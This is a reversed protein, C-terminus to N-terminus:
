QTTAVRRSQVSIPRFDQPLEGPVRLRRNESLQRIRVAELRPTLRIHKLPKVRALEVRPKICIPRCAKM